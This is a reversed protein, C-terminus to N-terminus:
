RTVGLKARLWMMMGGDMNIANYGEKILMKTATRSRSGSACV